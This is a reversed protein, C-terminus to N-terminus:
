RDFTEALWAKAWGLVSQRPLWFVAESRADVWLPTEAASLRIQLQYLSSNGQRNAGGPDAVAPFETALVAPLDISAARSLSMVDGDLVKGPQHPLRLRVRMGASLSKVQSPSVWATAQWDQQGGVSCLWTGTELFSGLQQRDLPQGQWDPLHRDEDSTPEEMPETRVPWVRGDRPARILLRDRDAELQQLQGRLDDRHAIAVPLEQRATEDTAGASQLHGVREAARRLQGQLRVHEVELEPNVLEAIPQGRQVVTGLPAHVRVLRGATVAYVDASDTPQLVAPATTWRPLPLGLTLVLFIALGGFVLWGSSRIPLAGGSSRRGTWLWRGMPVVVAFLLMWCAMLLAVWGLELPALFQHVVWLIVTMVLVRYVMSALGYVTLWRRERLSLPLESDGLRVLGWRDLWQWIVARSQSWLNLTGTADALLYYGDYRLLPNGNVLLTNVSGIAMVFFCASRFLGPAANWWLLTAASALVVEVTMGAASIMLRDRRRPLRWADSVDCYLCPMGCMLLVGMQKVDAGLHRCAVAHGLEHLVKVVALVILFVWWQDPRMLSQMSPLRSSLGDFQMTVVAVAAFVTLSALWTTVPWRIWNMRPMWVDLFRTPDWGPLRIFLPNQLQSMWRRRREDAARTHLTEAVGESLSEVLGERHWRTVLAIFRRPDLRRHPQRREFRNTVAALTSEGDLMRLLEFEEDHLYFYQRVVPDSLIWLRGHRSWAEQITLGARM